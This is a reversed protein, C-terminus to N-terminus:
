MKRLAYMYIPLRLKARSLIIARTVDHVFLELRGIVTLVVLLLISIRRLKPTATLLGHEQCKCAAVYLGARKTGDPKMVDYCKFMYFWLGRIDKIDVVVFFGFELFASAEVM